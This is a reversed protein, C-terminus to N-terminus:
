QKKLLCLRKNLKPDDKVDADSIRYLLNDKVVFEIDSKKPNTFDLYLIGNKSKWQGEWSTDGAKCLVQSYSFTKNKNLKLVIEDERTFLFNYYGKSYMIEIKEYQNPRKSVYKGFLDNENSAKLSFLFFSGFFLLIFYKKM